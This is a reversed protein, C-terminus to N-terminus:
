PLTSGESGQQERPLTWVWPGRLDPHEAVAGIRKKARKAQDRSYGAGDAAKYVDNAQMPGGELLDALWADIDNKDDNDETDMSARLLENATMAVPGPEWEVRACGHEDDSVLRYALSPPEAAINCKTTAVIRREPDSPDRAVLYAARAAGVIGISGGGRYLANAGGSKNMHRILVICTGTAEAMLGLPHLAARISQDSNSDTGGGLYAMLVDVIVLRVGHERVIRGIHAIDRALSPPRRVPKNDEDLGAPVDVLVHVRDCDAGAARLRPAITDALGDEASLILVDAAANDAGDPWTAGTSVRAAIDTLLTSKGTSPDGDVIVLKGAPFRGPWLWTVREPVVTSMTVVDPTPDPRIPIPATM